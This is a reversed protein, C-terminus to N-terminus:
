EMWEYGAESILQPVDELEANFDNEGHIELFSNADEIELLRENAENKQITKM